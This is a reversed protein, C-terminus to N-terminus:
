KFSDTATQFACLSPPKLPVFILEVYHSFFSIFRKGVANFDYMLNCSLGPRAQIVDLPSKTESLM